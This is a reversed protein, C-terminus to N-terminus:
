YDDPGAIKRLWNDQSDSWFMRGGWERYKATVDSVFTEEKDNAAQMRADELIEEFDALYTYRDALRMEHSEVLVPFLGPHLAAPSLPITKAKGLMLHKLKKGPDPKDQKTVMDFSTNKGGVSVTMLPLPGDETNVVNLSQVGDFAPAVNGAKPQDSVLKVKGTIPDKQIKVGM